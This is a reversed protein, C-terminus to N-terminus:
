ITMSLSSPAPLYPRVAREHHARERQEHEKNDGRATLRVEPQLTDRRVCPDDAPHDTGIPIAEGAANWEVDGEDVGPVPQHRREATQQELCVVAAREVLLEVLVLSLM